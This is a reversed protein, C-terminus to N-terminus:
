PGAERALEQALARVGAEVPANLQTDLRQRLAGTM